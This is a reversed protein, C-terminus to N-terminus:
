VSSALLNNITAANIKGPTAQSLQTLVNPNSVLQQAAAKLEPPYASNVNTAVRSIDAVNFAHDLVGDSMSDLLSTYRSLTSLADREPSVPMPLPNATNASPTITPMGSFPNLPATLPAQIPQPTALSPAPPKQGITPTVTGVGTLVGSSPMQIQQPTPPNILGNRFPNFKDPINQLLSAPVQVGPPQTTSPAFPLTPNVAAQVTPTSPGLLSNPLFTNLPNSQTNFGAQLIQELTLSNAANLTNTLSASNFSFSNGLSPISSPPLANLNGNGLIITAPNLSALAIASQLDFSAQPFGQTIVNRDQAPRTTPPPSSLGLRRFIGNMM